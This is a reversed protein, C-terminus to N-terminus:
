MVPGGARGTRHEPLDVGTVLAIGEAPGGRFDRGSHDRHDGALRALIVDLEVRYLEGSAGNKKPKTMGPSIATTSPPTSAELPLMASELTIAKATPPAMRPSKM